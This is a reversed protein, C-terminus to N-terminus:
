TTNYCNLQPLKFKSEPRIWALGLPACRWPALTMGGARCFVERKKRWPPALAGRCPVVHQNTIAFLLSVFYWFDSSLLGFLRCTPLLTMCYAFTGLTSFTPSATLLEFVNKVVLSKRDGGWKDVLKLFHARLKGINLLISM